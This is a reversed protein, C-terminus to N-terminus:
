SRCDRLVSPGATSHTEDSGSTFHQREAKSKTVARSSTDPHRGQFMLDFNNGDVRPCIPFIFVSFFQFSLGQAHTLHQIFFSGGGLILLIQIHVCLIMCPFHVFRVAQITVPSLSLSLSACLSVSLCSSLCLCVHFELWILCKNSIKNKPELRELILPFFSARRYCSFFVCVECVYMVHESIFSDIVKCCFLWHKWHYIHCVVIIGGLPFFLLILASTVQFKTWEM